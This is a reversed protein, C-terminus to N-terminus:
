DNKGTEDNTNYSSIVSNKIMADQPSLIKKISPQCVLIFFYISKVLNKGLEEYDKISFHNFKKSSGLFSSQLTYSYSNFQRWFTIRATSFKDQTMSYSCYRKNFNDELRQFYAAILRPSILKNNLNCGYFFANENMSHGHLDIMM